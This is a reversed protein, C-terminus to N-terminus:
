QERLEHQQNKIRDLLQQYNVVQAEAAKFLRLGLQVRQEAQNQVRRLSELEQERSVSTRANLGLPDPMHSSAAAARTADPLRYGPSTGREATSKGAQMWGDEFRVPSRRPSRGFPKICQVK